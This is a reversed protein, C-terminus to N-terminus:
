LYLSTNNAQERPQSTSDEEAASTTLRMGLLLGNAILNDASCRRSSALLARFYVDGYRSTMRALITSKAASPRSFSTM